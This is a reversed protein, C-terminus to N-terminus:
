FRESVSDIKKFTSSIMKSTADMMKAAADFKKSATDFRDSALDIKRSTADIMDSASCFKKASADFTMSASDIKKSIADIMDSASCFKKAAADIIVSASDIKKCAVDIQKSGGEISQMDPEEACRKRNEKAASRNSEQNKRVCLTAPVDAVSLEPPPQFLEPRQVWILRQLYVGYYSVGYWVHTSTGSNEVLQKMEMTVEGWILETWDVDHARGDKVARLKVDVWGYPVIAPLYARIFEEAAAAVAAPDV